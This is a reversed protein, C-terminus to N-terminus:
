RKGRPRRTAPSPKKRAGVRARLPAKPKPITAEDQVRAENRSDHDRAEPRPAEDERGEEGSSQAEGMGGLGQLRRGLGGPRASGTERRHLHISVFRWPEKDLERKVQRGVSDPEYAIFKKPDAAKIRGLIQCPLFDWSDLRVGSTAATGRPSM